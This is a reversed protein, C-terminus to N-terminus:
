FPIGFGGFFDSFGLLLYLDYITSSFYASLLSSSFVSGYNSFDLM